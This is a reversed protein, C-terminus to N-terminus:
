SPVEGGSATALAREVERNQTHRSSLIVLDLLREGGRKPLDQHIPESAELVIHLSRYQSKAQSSMVLRPRSLASFKLSSRTAAFLRRGGRWRTQSSVTKYTRLCRSTHRFVPFLSQSSQEDGSATALADHIQHQTYTVALKVVTEGGRKSLYHRIPESVELLIYLSQFSAKTQASMATRPRSLEGFRSTTGRFIAVNVM